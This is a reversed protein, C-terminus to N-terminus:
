QKIKINDLRKDPSAPLYGRAGWHRSNAHRTAVWGVRQMTQAIKQSAYKTVGHEKLFTILQTTEAWMLLMPLPGQTGPERELWKFQEPRFGGKPLESWASSVLRELLNDADSEERHGDQKAAALAQEDADLHWQEGALYLTRAATWLEDRAAVLGRVDIAKAPLQVVNFRTNGTPDRFLKEVNATAAFVCRRPVQEFERGYPRRYKDTNTSIFSKLDGHRDTSVLKDLEALEVILAGLLSQAADRGLYDLDDQFWSAQVCLAALMMSKGINQPGILTLVERNKCGPLYTRAVAGILWRMAVARTYADDPAGAFETLWAGAVLKADDLDGDFMPLADLYDRVPDVMNTECAQALAEQIQNTPAQPYDHRDALYVTLTTYDSDRVDRPYATGEPDVVWPPAALVLKKQARVDYAIVDTFEPLNLLKVVNSVCSLPKGTADRALAGTQEEFPEREARDLGRDIAKEVDADFLKAHAVLSKFAAGRTFHDPVHRRGFDFALSEAREPDTAICRACELMKKRAKEVKALSVIPKGEVIASMEDVVDEAFSVNTHEAGHVTERVQARKPTGPMLGLEQLRAPVKSWTVRETAEFRSMVYGNNAPHGIEPANRSHKDGHCFLKGDPLVCCGDSSGCAPCEFRESLDPEGGDWPNAQEWKQLGLRVFPDLERTDAGAGPTTIRRNTQKTRADLPLQEPVSVREVTGPLTGIREVMPDVLEPRLEPDATFHPQVAGYVTRDTPLACHSLWAKCEDGTLARDLLFWLHVRIGPKFGASGSARWVARANHFPKPLQSRLYQACAAPARHFDLGQPEPVSDFDIMLWARPVDIFTAPYHVGDETREKLLRRCPQETGAILQGRIVCTNRQNRLLNLIDHLDDIGDVDCDEFELYAPLQDAADIDDASNIKKSFRAWEPGLVLTLDSM